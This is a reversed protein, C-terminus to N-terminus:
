LQSLRLESCTLGQSLGVWSMTASSHHTVWKPFMQSTCGGYHVKCGRSDVTAKVLEWMCVCLFMYSCTYVYLFMHSCSYVSVHTLTYVCSCTHAHVCLLMYSHTCQFMYSCTCVPSQTFMFMPCSCTHAHVCSLLMYLCACLSMDSCVTFPILGKIGGRGESIDLRVVDQQVHIAVDAQCVKTGAQTEVVIAHYSAWRSNSSLICALPMSM